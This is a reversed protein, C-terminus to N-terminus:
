TAVRIVEGLVHKIDYLSSHFLYSKLNGCRHKQLNVDEPIHRRATWQTEVSTESSSIAEMKLTSSIPEAFWRALLHYCRYHWQLTVLSYTVFTKREPLLGQDVSNVGGKVSSAKQM